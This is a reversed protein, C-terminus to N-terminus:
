YKSNFIAHLLPVGFFVIGTIMLVAQWGESRIYHYIMMGFLGVVAVLLVVLAIGSWWEMFNKM